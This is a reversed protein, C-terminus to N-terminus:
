RVQSLAIRFGLNYDRADASDKKRNASQCGPAIMDWCGGRTVRGSSGHTVEPDRGGLLSEVHVDRCWEWVNGHMDHLGWANAARTGVLHTKNESNSSYWAFESLRAQDDGFCFRTTSGARCAYEWQAETPLTYKWELPLHREKRENETLKGCFDMAEDWSLREVPFQATQEGTVDSRGAGATSFWSPNNGMVREYHEQTIEHQALWFGETLTVEVPGSKAFLRESSVQWESSGFKFEGPPCWSFKIKLESFEREEGPANGDMPDSEESAESGETNPAINKTGM